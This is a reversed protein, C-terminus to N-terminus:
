KAYWSLCFLSLSKKIKFVNNFICTCTNASLVCIYIPMTGSRCAHSHPWSKIHIETFRRFYHRSGVAMVEGETAMGGLLGSRLAWTGSSRRWMGPTRASWLNAFPWLMLWSSTVRLDIWHIHNSPGLWTTNFVYFHMGNHVYTSTMATLCDSIDVMAFLYFQSQPMVQTHKIFM